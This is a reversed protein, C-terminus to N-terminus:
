GSRRGKRGPCYMGIGAIPKGYDGVQLLVVKETFTNDEAETFDDDNSTGGDIAM